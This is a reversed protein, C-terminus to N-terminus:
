SRTRSEFSLGPALICFPSPSQPSVGTRALCNVSETSRAKHAVVTNCDVLWRLKRKGAVRMATYTKLKSYLVTTKPLRTEWFCNPSSIALWGADVDCGGHNRFIYFDREICCGEISFFEQPESDLDTWPSHIIRDKTFWNLNNSNTANFVISLVESGGTYLTM